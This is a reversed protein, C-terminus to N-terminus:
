NASTVPQTSPPPTLQPKVITVNKVKTLTDVVPKVLESLNITGMRAKAATAAADELAKDGIRNAAVQLSQLLNDVLYLLQERQASGMPQADHHYTGLVLLDCYAQFVKQRQEATVVRWAAEQVLFRFPIAESNPDEPLGKRYLQTRFALVEMLIDIAKPNGVQLSEYAEAAMAGALHKKVAAVVADTVKKPNAAPKTLLDPLVFKAARVGWLQLVYPQKEELFMLVAPELAGSKLAEAVRALAIAANLRARIPAQNIKAPDLAKVMAQSYRSVYAASPATPTRADNELARRADQQAAANDGLVLQINAAVTSDIVNADAADLTPKTKLELRILQPRGGANGTAQGYATSLALSLVFAPILLSRLYQNM